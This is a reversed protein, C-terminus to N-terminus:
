RGSETATQDASYNTLNQVSKTVVRLDKQTEITLRMGLQVLDRIAKIPKDLQGRRARFRGRARSAYGNQKM